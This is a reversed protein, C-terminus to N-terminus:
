MVSEEWGMYSDFWENYKARAEEFSDFAKYEFFGQGNVSVVYAPKIKGVLAQGWDTSDSTMNTAIDRTDLLAVWYGYEETDGFFEPQTEGCLTDLYESVALSENGEYKGPGPKDTFEHERMHNEFELLGDTVTGCVKCKMIIM